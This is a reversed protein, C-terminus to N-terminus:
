TGPPVYAQQSRGAKDLVDVLEAPTILERTEHRDFSGTSTVAVSIAAAARSDPADIILIGDHGGFMYYLAELQAGQAEVATRVAATRDNPKMVMRNWTEPSYSFFFAFKAM